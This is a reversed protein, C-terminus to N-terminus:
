TGWDAHVAAQLAEVARIEAAHAEQLCAVAKQRNGEDATEGDEPFPFLEAVCRMATEVDAYMEAARRLPVRVKKQREAVRELWARAFGKAEAWCQANYANGFGIASDSELAEIWVPYSELGFGYERFVTPRKLLTVANGVAYRDALVERNRVATGSPFAMVYPGGPADLADYPIPEEAQGLVQRFSKVLYRGDEVGIVAAFEPVYAGWLVCPRGEMVEQTVLEFAVQCHRRTRDDAREQNHCDSSGFVLTSRGLMHVGHDLMGWDFMTPGSPCLERHVTMVFAYGTQGAVDIQDCSVDLAELCSTTAAVWTLWSGRWTVPVPVEAKTSVPEMGVSGVEEDRLLM